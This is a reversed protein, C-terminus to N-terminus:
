HQPGQNGILGATNIQLDGQVTPVEFKGNLNELTLPDGKAEKVGYHNVAGAAAATITAGLAGGGANISQFAADMSAPKFTASVDGGLTPLLAKDGFPLMGDPQSQGVASGGQVNSNGPPIAGSAQLEGVSPGQNSAPGSM